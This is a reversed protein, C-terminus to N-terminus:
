PRTAPMRPQHHLHRARNVGHGHAGPHDDLGILRPVYGALDHAEGSVVGAQHKAGRSPTRRPQRASTEDAEAATRGDAPQSPPTMFAM